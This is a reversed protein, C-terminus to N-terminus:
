EQAEKYFCNYDDLWFKWKKGNVTDVVKPKRTFPKEDSNERKLQITSSTAKVIEYVAEARKSNEFIRATFREGVQFPQAAKEQERTEVVEVIEAYAAKLTGGGRIGMVNYTVNQSGTSIIECLGWRQIKVIYGPKINDRNFKVGGLEELCNKLYAQKDIAVEILELEKEYWGRAEDATIIEGSFRKRIEGCEIAQIVEEYYLANKNRKEIEKKCERIRRDLYALDRYQAQEATNRATAAKEKFYSSKRYEEFGNTYQELMKERSRTFARGASTNINPQTFFAIDGHMDNVPKQLREARKEANESYSEYREARAEAREKQIEVQEEFSRREGQREEETFGLKKAVRIAGWLNPEKARSVWCNGKRSWLFYSKIKRKDSETLADYESKEFHLEIKTTELNFIYARSETQNTGM